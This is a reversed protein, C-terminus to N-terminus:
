RAKFTDSGPNPVIARSGEVKALRENRDPSCSPVTHFTLRIPYQLHGCLPLGKHATSIREVLTHGILVTNPGTGTRTTPSRYGCSEGGYPVFLIHM